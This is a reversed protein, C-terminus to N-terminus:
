NRNLDPYACWDLILNSLETNYSQIDKDKKLELSDYKAKLAPYDKEIPVFWENSIIHLKKDKVSFNQGIATFIEKKQQLNGLLFGKRACLAFNFTKETLELWKDARSETDKLNAQLKSIKSKLDDREKIFTEDDILERYRM